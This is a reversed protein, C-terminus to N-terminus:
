TVVKVGTWVGGQKGDGVSSGVPPMAPCGWGQATSLQWRSVSNLGLTHSSPKWATPPEMWQGTPPVSGAKVWQGSRAPVLLIHGRLLNAKIAGRHISGRPCVGESSCGKVSEWQHIGGHISESPHTGKSSDGQHVGRPLVGKSPSAQMGRPHVEKPSYKKSPGGNISGGKSPGVQRFERPQIFKQNM